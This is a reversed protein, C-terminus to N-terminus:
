LHRGKTHGEGHFARSMLSLVGILPRPLVLLRENHLGIGNGVSSGVRVALGLPLARSGGPRASSEESSVQGERRKGAPVCHGECGRLHFGNVRPHLWPQCHHHPRRASPLRVHSHLDDGVDVVVEWLLTSEEDGM